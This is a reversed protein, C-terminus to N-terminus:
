GRRQEMEVDLLEVGLTQVERAQEIRRDRLRGLNPDLAQLVARVDVQVGVQQIAEVVPRHKLLPRRRFLGRLRERERQLDRVPGHNAM